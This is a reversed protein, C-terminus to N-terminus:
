RPALVGYFAQWHELWDEFAMQATDIAADNVSCRGCLVDNGVGQYTSHDHLYVKEGCGLCFAFEDIRDQEALHDALRQEPSSM